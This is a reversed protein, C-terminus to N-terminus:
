RLVGHKLTAVELFYLGSQIKPLCISQIPNEIVTNFVEKGELSFLKMVIKEGNLSEANLEITLFGQVPNPYFKISSNSKDRQDEVNVVFDCLINQNIQYSFVDDEYCRFWTFGMDHMSEYCFDGPSYKGLGGIREVFRYSDCKVDSIPVVDIFKLKYGNLEM